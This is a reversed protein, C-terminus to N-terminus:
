FDLNSCICVYTVVVGKLAIICVKDTRYWSFDTTDVEILLYQGITYKCQKHWIIDLGGLVGM